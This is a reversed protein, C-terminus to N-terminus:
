RRNWREIGIVPSVSLLQFTLYGRRDVWRRAAFELGPAGKGNIDAALFLRFEVIQSELMIDGTVAPLFECLSRFRFRQHGIGGLAEGPQTM